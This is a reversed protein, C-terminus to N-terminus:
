GAYSVLDFQQKFFVRFSGYDLQGLVRKVEQYAFLIEIVRIYQCLGLTVCDSHTHSIGEVHFVLLGRDREVSYVM